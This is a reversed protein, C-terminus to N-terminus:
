VFSKYTKRNLKPNFFVIGLNYLDLTVTVKPHACINKWTNRNKHSSYINSIVMISDDSMYPLVKEFAEYSFAECGIAGSASVGSSGTVTKGWVFFDIIDDEINLKDSVRIEIKSSTHKDVIKGAITAVHFDPEAVVCYASKSYATLYLPALGLDSDMIYIKHPKFRNALRFLLQDERESFCYRNLYNNVALEYNNHRVVSNDQRLQTRVLSLSEYSYYLMKEEIVTTLLDFVFPSHVGHGGRCFLKRYLGNLVTIM